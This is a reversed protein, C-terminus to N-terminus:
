AEGARIRRDLDRVEKSTGVLLMSGVLILLNLLFPFTRNLSSLWGILTGFPATIGIMMMYLLASVRSREQDDIFLASLSDKRPAICVLACGELFTYFLLIGLSERPAWLLVLHAAVYITYGTLMVPRYPLKNVRPQITLIFLLMLASRVIPFISLFRDPVGLNQTVYLGYFNSLVTNTLNYSLMVLLALMMQRSTIIQWFVRGYGAMLRTLPVGRTEEMRKLGQSTERGLFYLLLFKTMMMVFSFLYLGRMVPVVSFRGVLLTSIPALFVSLLGSLQIWAYAPVILRKDCDEVLLCSWSNNTIQWMSNLMTAALFWWFNQAFAWILCPVGWSLTDFIVTTLRRGLKDTIVGGFFSAVVQLVMGISLLFGIHVDDVGLKYMFLTAFPVYLQYPIGWLPECLICLRPNRNMELLAQVMANRRLMAWFKM